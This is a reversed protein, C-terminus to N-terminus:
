AIFSLTGAATAVPIVNPCYDEWRANVRAIFPLYVLLYVGCATFIGAGVLAIDLWLRRMKDTASFCLAEFDACVM